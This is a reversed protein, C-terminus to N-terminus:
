FHNFISGLIPGGFGVFDGKSAGPPARPRGLDCFLPDWFHDWFHVGFFVSKPAFRGLRLWRGTRSSLINPGLDGVGARAPIILFLEDISSISALANERAM